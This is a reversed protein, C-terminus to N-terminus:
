WSSAKLKQARARNYANQKEKRCPNCLNHKFAGFQYFEDKPKEINCKPCMRM